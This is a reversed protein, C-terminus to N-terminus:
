GALRASRRGSSGCVHFGSRISNRPPKQAKDESVLLAGQFLGSYGITQL